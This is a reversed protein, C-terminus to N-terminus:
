SKSLSPQPRSLIRFVCYLEGNLEEHRVLKLRIADNLEAIGAGDAMTPASRGGFLVPCITVYLENVLRERFIPANIEGGGECVLSKVNWQKRLWALAAPFDVSNGPSVHVGDILSSLRRLRDRPAAESTLLLIPSFRKRFIYANPSVSASGSAIVRLNFEALGKGIRQRQYRQGGPGLDVKALDVTRAGALVADARSRLEMLLQQDRKSGFPVFQRSDPALKGDATIAVNVTVFPLRLRTM